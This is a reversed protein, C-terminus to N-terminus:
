SSCGRGEEGRATQGLPQPPQCPCSSTGAGWYPFLSQSMLCLPAPLKETGYLCHLSSVTLTSVDKVSFFELHHLKWSCSLRACGWLEGAPALVLAARSAVGLCHPVPLVLLSALATGCLSLHGWLGPQSGAGAQPCHCQAPSKPALSPDQVEQSLMGPALPPDTHPCCLGPICLCGMGAKGAPRTGHAGGLATDCTPSRSSMPSPVAM